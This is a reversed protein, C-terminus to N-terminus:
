AFKGFHSFAVTSMTSVEARSAAQHRDNRVPQRHAQRAGAPVSGLLSAHHTRPPTLPKRDDKAHNQQGAAGDRRRLILGAAGGQVSGDRIRRSGDDRVGAHGQRAGLVPHGAGKWGGACAAVAKAQQWRGGVGQPDLSRAELRVLLFANHQRGPLRGRLGNGERNTGATLLDRHGALCRQQVQIVCVKRRVDGRPLHHLQREVEAVDVAQGRKVRGHLVAGLALLQVAAAGLARGVLVDRKQVEAAAEEARRRKQQVTDPVRGRVPTGHDIDRRDVAHVLELDLGVGKGRLVSETRAIHDVDRGLRAGVVEM